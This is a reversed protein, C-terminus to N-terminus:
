TLNIVTKLKSAMNYIVIAHPVITPPPPETWPYKHKLMMSESNMQIISIYLLVYFDFNTTTPPPAPPPRPPSSELDWIIALETYMGYDLINDAGSKNCFM